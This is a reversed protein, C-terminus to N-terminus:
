KGQEPNKAHRRKAKKPAGAASETRLNLITKDFYRVAAPTELGTYFDITTQLSRHGLVRRVTAPTPMSISSPAWTASFTPIFGCDLTSASPGRSRPELLM